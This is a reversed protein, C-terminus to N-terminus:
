FPTFYKTYNIFYVNVFYKEISGCLKEYPLSVNDHHKTNNINAEDHGRSVILVM